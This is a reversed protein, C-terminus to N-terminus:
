PLMVHTSNNRRKIAIAALVISLVFALGAGIIILLSAQECSSVPGTDCFLIPMVGLCFGGVAMSMLVVSSIILLINRLSNGKKM